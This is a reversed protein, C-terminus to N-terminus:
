FVFVQDEGKAVSGRPVSWGLGALIKKAADVMGPPGCLFVKRADGPASFERRMMGEDVFGRYGNWSDDARSLVYKVNLQDPHERALADLEERLLIDNETNNAYLLNIRTDDLPDTCAARLVQYMPTIGTGGAIMNITRASDRSYQMAGKPGRFLLSAGIPLSALHTTMKGHPYAKVLLILHGLSTSSSIPTYSRSIPNSDIQAQVAIHQGIPLPLTDTPNPLAFVLRYVNPTLETKQTLTLPRWKQPHLIPPSALTTTHRLPILSASHAARRPQYHTFEQQVDLKSSLWLGLSCTITLQTISAIGAGTWFSGNSNRSSTNNRLAQLVQPTLDQQYITVAATGILGALGLKTVVRLVKTWLSPKHVDVAAAQSIHEYTPRYVEVTEAQEEAPLDGVYFPELQERAEDSHGIEEFADTADTGAVELLIAGGGPHDELYKTIGYVKNHLVVWVDDPKCHNKVQELTYSM